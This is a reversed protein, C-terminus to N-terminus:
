LELRKRRRSDPLAERRFAMLRGTAQADERRAAYESLQDALAAKADDPLPAAVSELFWRLGQADKTDLFYKGFLFANERAYAEYTERARQELHYPARLRDLVLRLLLSPAEQAQAYPFLVDYQVFDFKKGQFCNRYLIGTGHVHTELIRAPTNEVGEEYFEPFALRAYVAPNQANEAEERRFAAGPTEPEEACFEVQLSEPLEDLVQKLGSSGDPRVRVCLAEIRHCGSFAGSGWDFLEGSFELRRLHGCNYFCYRGVRRLTQPLILSELQDGSLVPLDALDENEWSVQPEVQGSSAIRVDGRRFADMWEKEEMHASFAYPALERVPLGDMREPIRVSGDRSFCRLIVASDGKKEYAFLQSAMFNM